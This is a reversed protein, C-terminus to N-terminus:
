RGNKLDWLLHFLNKGMTIADRLIKVKSQGRKRREEWCVPIEVVQYRKRVARVIFETDWFWADDKIENLLDCVIKKSFAKFGCQHDHVGDHFLFRVSMNYIQSAIERTLPRKVHANTIMRSGTSLDAGRNIANVLQPLHKLDTALDADMYVMIDGKATMFANKLARGRGLKKRSHLHRIRPHERALSAAIKDTGDTSGDEAIIVEHNPTIREIAQLVEYVCRRINSAENCM